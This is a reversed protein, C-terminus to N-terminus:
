SDDRILIEIRPFYQPALKELLRRVAEPQNYTPVCVSLLIEKQSLSM